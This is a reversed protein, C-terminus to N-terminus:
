RGGQVTGMGQAERDDPPLHDSGVGPCIVRGGLGPNLCTQFHCGGGMDSAPPMYFNWWGDAMVVFPNILPFFGLQLYVLRQASEAM